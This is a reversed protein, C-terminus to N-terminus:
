LAVPLGPQFRAQPPQSNAPSRRFPPRKSEAPEPRSHRAVGRLAGPNRRIPGRHNPGWGRPLRQSGSPPPTSSVTGPAKAAQESTSKGSSQSALNPTSGPDPAFGPLRLIQGANIRHRDRIGNVRVLEEDDVGFRLAILTLNDGPRVKYLGNEPVSLAADASASAASAYEIPLRLQQGVRIRNRNRLDNLSALERVSVRYKQAIASLTEGRRVVHYSDRTQSTFLERRPLGPISASLPRNLQAVPVKFEFGRPVRKQGKWVPSLLAPNAAKLAPLDLELAQSLAKASIYFPLAFIEYQTPPTMSLPGFFAEPEEAIRSAAIFEVYFNRSAFGFRRSKYERIIREIDQHGLKRTARRMGSAGHNYATIALPWSGTVRLNQALLRAAAETSKYPDRREDVIQDVRMFRRGTTRTFQWLGAAGIRSYAEPSYSSEVHPLAALQPPLGMEGLIEQIHDAYAGSRILGARFRDAQGQQFRIRKTHASLEKNSVGPPFLALIRKEEPELDKRKGGALTKLIKRYRDKHKELYREEAKESLGKPLDIEEYVVHINRYDHLLGASNEVETYIRMWFQIDPELGPPEVFLGTNREVGHAMSAVLLLSAILVFLRRHIKM